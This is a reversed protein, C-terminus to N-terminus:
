TRPLLEQVQEIDPLRDRGIEMQPAEAQHKTAGKVQPIHQQKRPARHKPRCNQTKFRRTKCRHKILLFGHDYELIRVPGHCTFTRIKKM